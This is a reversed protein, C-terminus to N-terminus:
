KKNEKERKKNIVDMRYSHLGSAIAQAAQDMLRSMDNGTKEKSISWHASNDEGSELSAHYEVRANKGEQSSIIEATLTADAGEPKELVVFGEHVLQMKLLTRFHSNQADETTFPALYVRRVTEMDRPAAPREQQALAATLGTALLALCLALSGRTRNNILTV